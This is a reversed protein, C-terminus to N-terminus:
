EGGFLLSVGAGFGTNRIEADDPLDNALNSIGLLYRVDIVLPGVGIGAGLHAGLELRNWEDFDIDDENGNDDVSRGSLLYGISPGGMVFFKATEGFNAKILLPLELYNLTATM